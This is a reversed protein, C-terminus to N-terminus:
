EHNAMRKEKRKVIEALKHRLHAVVNRRRKKMHLLRDYLNNARFTLHKPELVESRIWVWVFEEATMGHYKVYGMAAFPAAAVICLWGVIENGVLPKLGFYVGMAVAMALVSCVSQRLSLGFFVAETYERIERNIKIQM